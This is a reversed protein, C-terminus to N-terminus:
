KVVALSQKTSTSGLFDTAGAYTAVLSYRGAALQKASLLCSGKGMTLNISCIVTSSAAITVTGTPVLGKGQGSVTVSLREAHEGGYTVNAASLKLTTKSTAKAVILLKQASDNGADIAVLSYTGAALQTNSLSCSGKGASLKISCLTTVSDSITVTGTRPAPTVTVSLKESKERGYTVKAASLSLTVRAAAVHAADDTGTATGYNSDGSYSATATYTGAQTNSITCTATGASLTSSPCTPSGPGTLTWTVTGTPTPGSGTVTATFILTGGTSITSSNDAVSVTAGTKAVHATSDTGTATGYNSDGSYSATATYTGAV